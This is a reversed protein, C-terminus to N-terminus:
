RGAKVVRYVSGTPTPMNSLLPLVVELSAKLHISTQWLAQNTEDGMTDLEHQLGLVYAKGNIRVFHMLFMNWFFTGDKRRNRQICMCDQPDPRSIKEMSAAKRCAQSFERAKVWESEFICDEPVGDILFHCTRGVTEEASYGTLITFGASIGILPLDEFSPDSVTISILVDAIRPIMESEEADNLWAEFDQYRRLRPGFCMSGTNGEIKILPLKLDSTPAVNTEHQACLLAVAGLVLFAVAGYWQSILHFPYLVSAGFGLLDILVIVYLVRSQWKM